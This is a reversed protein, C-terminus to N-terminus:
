INVTEGDALTADDWPSSGAASADSACQPASFLKGGASQCAQSQRALPCPPVKTTCDVREM